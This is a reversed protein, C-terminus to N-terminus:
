HIFEHYLRERNILVEFGVVTIIEIQEPISKQSLSRNWLDSDRGKYDGYSWRLSQSHIYGRALAYDGMANMPPTEPFPYYPYQYIMAGESAYDEIQTVFEHDSYYDYTYTNLQNGQFITQEFLSICCLASFLIIFIRKKKVNKEFEGAVVVITTISFFAIFVSIRNYARIQASIFLSFLSGFGGITALLIAALNLKGFLQLDKNYNQFRLGFITLLSFLLGIAGVIGLYESGENPVPASSYINLYKELLPINHSQNPLFFQTLKLGYVEAEIPSRVPSEINTGYLHQFYITPLMAILLVGVICSVGLIATKSVHHDKFLRLIFTLFIFFCSFFAYYIGCLAMFVLAIGLFIFEKRSYKYQPSKSYILYCFYLTFPIFTYNSLYLHATGRLFRYPLAMFLLSGLFSWWESLRLKQLVFFSTCFTAPFLLIYYLNITLGVNNGTVFLLISQSLLNLTDGFLPFDIQLAQFPAGLRSNLFFGDVLRSAFLVSCMSDGDRYWFPVNFDYGWLNLAWFCYVISVFCGAIYWIITKKPKHQRSVKIPHM